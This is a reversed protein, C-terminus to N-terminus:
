YYEATATAKAAAAAAQAGYGRESSWDQGHCKELKPEAPRRCISFIGFCFLVISYHLTSRPLFAPQDPQDPLHM